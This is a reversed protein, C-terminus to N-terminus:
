IPLLVIHLTVIAFPSFGIEGYTFDPADFNNAGRERRSAIRAADTSISEYIKEFARKASTDKIDDLSSIPDLRRTATSNLFSDSFGTSISDADTM